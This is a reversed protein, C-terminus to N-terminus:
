QSINDLTALTLKDQHCLFRRYLVKSCMGNITMTFTMTDPDDAKVEFVSVVTRGDTLEHRGTMTFLSGIDNELSYISSAWFRNPLLEVVVEHLKYRTVMVAGYEWEM